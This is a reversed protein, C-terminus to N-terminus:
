RNRSAAFCGDATELGAGVSLVGRALKNARWDLPAAQRIDKYCHSMNIICLGGLLRNCRGFRKDQERERERDRRVHQQDVHSSTQGECLVIYSAVRRQLNAGRAKPWQWGQTVESFNLESV